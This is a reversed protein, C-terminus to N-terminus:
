ILFLNKVNELSNLQKELRKNDNKADTLHRQLDMIHSGNDTFRQKMDRLESRVILLENELQQRRNNANSLDNQANELQDKLIQNDSNVRSHQDITRRLETENTTARILDKKLRDNDDKMDNNVSEMQQLRSSLDRMKENLSNRESEFNALILRIQQSENEEDKLKSELHFKHMYWREEHDRLVGLDSQATELDKRLTRVLDNLQRLQAEKGRAEMEFKAIKLKMHRREEDRQKLAEEQSRLLQKASTLRMEM